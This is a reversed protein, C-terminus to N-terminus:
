KDKIKLGIIRILFFRVVLALVQDQTLLLDEKVLDIAVENCNTILCREKLLKLQSILVPSQLVDICNHVM